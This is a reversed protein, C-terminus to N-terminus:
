EGKTFHNMVQSKWEPETPKKPIQKDRAVRLEEVTGLNRYEKLTKHQIAIIELQHNLVKLIEEVTGLASYEKCIENLKWYDDQLTEIQEVTGIARYQQIEEIAKIAMDLAEITGTVDEKAWSCNSTTTSLAVDAKNKLYSIRNIAEQETM